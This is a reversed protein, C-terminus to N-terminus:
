WVYVLLRYHLLIVGRFRIWKAHSCPRAREQDVFSWLVCRRQMGCGFDSGKEFGAKCARRLELVADIDAMPSRRSEARGGGDKVRVDCREVGRKARSCPRAALKAHWWNLM